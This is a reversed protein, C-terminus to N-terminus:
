AENGPKHSHPDFAHDLTHQLPAIQASANITQRAVQEGTRQTRERIRTSLQELQALPRSAVAYAKGAGYVAAVLLVYLPFLCLLAPCLLLVTM